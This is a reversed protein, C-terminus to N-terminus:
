WTQCIELGADESAVLGEKTVGFHGKNRLRLTKTKCM